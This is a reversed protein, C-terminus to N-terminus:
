KLGDMQQKENKEPLLLSLSIGSFGAIERILKKVRRSWTM